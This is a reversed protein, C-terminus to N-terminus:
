HFDTLSSLSKKQMFILWIPKLKQYSILLRNSTKNKLALDTNVKSKNMVM